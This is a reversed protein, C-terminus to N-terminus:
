RTRAVVFHTLSVLADRSASPALNGLEDLATSAYNDLTARAQVLGSSARLLGVAEALESESDIPGSVL